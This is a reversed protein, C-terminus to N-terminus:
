GPRRRKRTGWTSYTTSVLRVTAIGLKLLTADRRRDHEAQREHQPGDIEIATRTLPDYWDLVYGKMRPLSVFLQPILRARIEDPQSYYYVLEAKSQCFQDADMGHDRWDGGYRLLGFWNHGCHPCDLSMMECVLYRTIFEESDEVHVLRQADRGVSSKCWCVMERDREERGCKVCYADFLGVDFRHEGNRCTDHPSALKQTSSM